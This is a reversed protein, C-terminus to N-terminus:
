GYVIREIGDKMLAVNFNMLLGLWKNSLKLYSKVQAKHIQIIKEVSKLEVIVLDGVLMDIRYGLDLHIEKYHVPLCVQRKFMVERKSLEYCLCEEYTSELLGPGLLKHVEIAAGIIINSLEDSKRKIEETFLSQTSQTSQTPRVM